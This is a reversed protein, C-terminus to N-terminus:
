PNATLTISFLVSAYGLITSPMRACLFFDVGERGKLRVRINNFPRQGSVQAKQM